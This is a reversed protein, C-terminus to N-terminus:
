EENTPGVYGIRRAVPGAAQMIASREEATLGHHERRDAPAGGLRRRLVSTDVPVRAAGALADFARGAVVSEYAIM